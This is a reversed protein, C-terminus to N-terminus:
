LYNRKNMMRINCDLENQKELIKKININQSFDNEREVRQKIQRLHTVNNEKVLFEDRIIDAEKLTYSTNKLEEISFFKMTHRKIFGLKTFLAVTKETIKVITIDETEEVKYIENFNVFNSIKNQGLIENIKDEYKLISKKLNEITKGPRVLSVFYLIDKVSTKLEENTLTGAELKKSTENKLNGFLTKIHKITM